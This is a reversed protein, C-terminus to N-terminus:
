SSSEPEFLLRLQVATRQVSLSIFTRYDATREKYCMWSVSEISLTLIIRKMWSRDIKIGERKLWTLKLEIPSHHDGISHKVVIFEDGVVTGIRFILSDRRQVLCSSDLSDNCRDSNTKLWVMALRRTHCQNPFLMSHRDNSEIWGFAVLYHSTRFSVITTGHAASVYFIRERTTVQRNTVLFFIWWDMPIRSTRKSRLRRVFYLCSHSLGQRLLWCASVHVSCYSLDIGDHVRRM